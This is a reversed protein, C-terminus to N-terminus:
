QTKSRARVRQSTTRSQTASLASTCLQHVEDLSTLMDEIDRQQQRLLNARQEVREIVTNLQERNNNAPDYLDIMDASEQLTMGIRKGRLILQIRVRDAPSYIRTQGRRAPTIFGKEEYFRIARTTVGFEKALEAITYTPPSM